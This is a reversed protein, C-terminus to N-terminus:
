GPLGAKVAACGPLDWAPSWYATVRLVAFGGRHGAGVVGFLPPCSGAHLVGVGVPDDGPPRPAAAVPREPSEASRASHDHAGRARLFQEGRHALGLERCAGAPQGWGPRRFRLVWRGGLTLPLGAVGTVRRRRRLGDAAMAIRGTASM